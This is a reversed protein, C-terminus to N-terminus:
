EEVQLDQKKMKWTNKEIVGLNYYKMRLIHKNHHGHHQHSLGSERRARSEGETRRKAREARKKTENGSFMQNGWIYGDGIDDLCKCEHSQRLRAVMRQGALAHGGGILAKFEIFCM